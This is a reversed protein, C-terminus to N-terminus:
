GGVLSFNTPPKRKGPGGPDISFCRQNEKITFAVTMRTIGRVLPLRLADKIDTRIASVRVQNTLAVHCRELHEVHFM